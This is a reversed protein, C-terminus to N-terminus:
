TGGCTVSSSTAVAQFIVANSYIGAPQGGSVNLFFRLFMPSGPAKNTAFRIGLSNQATATMNNTGYNAPSTATNTTANSYTYNTNGIDNTEPNGTALSENDRICLDANDSGPGAYVWYSTQQKNADAVSGNFNYTANNNRSGPDVPGFLIGNSLNTSIGISIASPKQSVEIKTNYNLSINFSRLNGFSDSTLKYPNSGAAVYTSNFVDYDLSAAMGFVTYNAITGRTNNTDNWSLYSENWSAITRNIVDSQSLNTRLWVDTSANNRYNFFSTRDQFYIERSQTFNTDTFNNTDSANWLYYDYAAWGLSRISGNTVNNYNSSGLYFGYAANGRTLVTNNRFDNYDSYNVVIGHASAALTTINNFSIANMGSSFNLYIGVSSAAETTLSNNEITNLRSTANMFIGHAFTGLTRITNNFVTNLSSDRVYIGFAHAGMTTITNNGVVTSNSSSNLYIGYASTGYTTINNVTINNLESSANLYIGYALVGSTNVRNRTANSGYVTSFFIGHSFAGTTNVTNNYVVTFNGSQNLYIGFASTGGTFITNNFVRILSGKVLSIGRSGSGATTITNNFISSDFMNAAYIADSRAATSRGQIFNTDRITLNNFGKGNDVGYGNTTTAYSVNYRFSSGDLTVNNAGITFCTGSSTVNSTLVYPGWEPNELKSCAMDFNITANFSNATITSGLNSNSWVMVSFTLDNTSNIRFYRRINADVSTTYSLHVDAGTTSTSALGDWGRASTANYLGMQMTAASEASDTNIQVSNVRSVGRLTFNVFIYEDFKTTGAQAVTAADAFSVSTLEAETLTTGGGASLNGAGFGGSYGQEDAAQGKWGTCGTCNALLTVTMAEAGDATLFFLPLLSLLLLPALRRYSSLRITFKKGAM